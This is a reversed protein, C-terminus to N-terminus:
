PTINFLRPERARPPTCLGVINNQGTRARHDRVPMHIKETYAKITEGYEGTEREREARSDCGGMKM